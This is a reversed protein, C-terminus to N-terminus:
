NATPPVCISVAAPHAKLRLKTVFKRNGGDVQYRIPRDFTATFKTGRAFRVYRSGDAKGLGIRAFVSAWQAPNSATVIGLDLIGDDPEAAPFVNIGGMTKSVNGVLVCSVRGRYFREGDVKVVAQVPRVALSAAGAVLYAFRGTRAKMTRDARGIMEADFGAGAMVVFHEGNVSGTDLPRRQGYLGTRVASDIDPRIGLNSALLNATGAPIIALAARPEPSSAVADICHQVMGDGGWVIIVDAGDAMASRVRRGAKRSKRVEHWIPATCGHRALVRRLEPLGGGVSKRAHAVVAVIAM